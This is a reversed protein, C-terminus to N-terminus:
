CKADKSHTHAHACTHATARGVPSHQTEGCSDNTDGWCGAVGFTTELASKGGHVRLHVTQALARDGGLSPQEVTSVRVYERHQNQASVHIM